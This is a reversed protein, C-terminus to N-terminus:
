PVVIEEVWQGGVYRYVTRQNPMVGLEVKDVVEPEIVVLAFNKVAYLVEQREREREGESDKGEGEEIEGLKRLKEPWANAAEYGGELRSGPVPRAWSARMHGSMSSFVEKRKAEWDFNGDGGSLRAGPFAKLLADATAQIVAKTSDGADRADLGAQDLETSEKSPL